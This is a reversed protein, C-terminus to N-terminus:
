NSILNKIDEKSLEPFFINNLAGAIIESCNAVQRDINKPALVLEKLLQKKSKCSANIEDLFNEAYIMFPVGIVICDAGLFKKNMFKNSNGVGSGAALGDNNIQFSNGLRVISNSALTDFLIILDPKFKECISKIIEATELGTKAQVSPCVGATQFKFDLGNSMFLRKIIEGGLADATIKDNGLGFYLISKYKQINYFEILENNILFEVYNACKYGIFDLEPANIISFKKRGSQKRSITIGFDYKLPEDLPLNREDFMDTRKSIKNYIKAKKSMKM